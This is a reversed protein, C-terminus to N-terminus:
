LVASWWSARMSRPHLSDLLDEFGIVEGQILCNIHSLIMWEPSPYRHKTSHLGLPAYHMGSVFSRIHVVHALNLQVCEAKTYMNFEEITDYRLTNCKHQLSLRRRVSIWVVFTSMADSTAAELPRSDCWRWQMWLRDDWVAFSWASLVSSVPLTVLMYWNFCYTKVDVKLPNSNHQPSENLLISCWKSVM